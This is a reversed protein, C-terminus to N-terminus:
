RTTRPTTEAGRRKRGPIVRTGSNAGNGNQRLAPITIRELVSVTVTETGFAQRLRSRIEQPLGARMAVATLNM